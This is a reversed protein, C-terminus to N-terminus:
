QFNPARVIPVSGPGVGPLNKRKPMVTIQRGKFVSENLHKSRMASDKTEFEIFTCGNPKRTVKDYKITM